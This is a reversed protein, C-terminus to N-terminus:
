VEFQWQIFNVGKTNQRGVEMKSENDVSLIWNEGHDGLNESHAVFMEGEKPRFVQAQENLIVTFFEIVHREQAHEWWNIKEIVTGLTAPRRSVDQKLVLKKFKDPRPKTISM